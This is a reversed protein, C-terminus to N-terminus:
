RGNCSTRMKGFLKTHTWKQQLSRLPPCKASCTAPPARTHTWLEPQSAEQVGLVCWIHHFDQVENHVLHSAEKTQQHIEQGRKGCFLQKEDRFLVVTDCNKPERNRTWRLFELVNDVMLLSKGSPLYSTARRCSSLRLPVLSDANAPLTKWSACGSNLVERKSHM